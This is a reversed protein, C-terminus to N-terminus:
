RKRMSFSLTAQMARATTSLASSGDKTRAGCRSGGGGHHIRKARRGGGFGNAQVRGSKLDYKLLETFVGSALTGRTALAFVTNHPRGTFRGDIKPFEITRDDLQQEEAKSAGPKITWRTLIATDFSYTHASPGGRWHEDYRAVDMVISGDATEFANAVHYVYCPDVEVWRLRDVTAGRPLVGLRAGYTDSWRFPMSAGGMASELDFVVPLDMFIAHGSTLAFDHVMTAGKVPIEM